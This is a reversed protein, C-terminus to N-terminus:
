PAGGLEALEVALAYREACRECLGAGPTWTPVEAAICRAVTAPVSAAWAYTPFRCLPCPAGPAPRGGDRGEDLRVGAWAALAGADAAFRVLERYTPRPGEWLRDVVVGAGQPSLRPFAKGVAAVYATRARRPARGARATRGDVACDWLLGFRHGLLRRAVPAGDGATQGYGFTPDLMDAVHGFEHDLLRGCSPDGFREPTLRVLLTCRDPALDAGEDDPSRARGVVVVRCPLRARALADAVPRGCGLAEFLDLHLRRFAAARAEPERHLLYLRDATRRYHQQWHTEGAQARRLLEREVVAEVLAAQYRLVPGGPTM